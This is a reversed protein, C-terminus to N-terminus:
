DLNLRKHSDIIEELVEITESIDKDGQITNCYMHGWGLNYPRHNLKKPRLADVHMLVISKQTNDIVQRGEMQKVDDFFEDAFLPKHCLPCIIRSEKSNWVGLHNLENYNLLNREECAKSFLKFEKNFKNIYEEKSSQMMKIFTKGDKPDQIDIFNNFIYEPFSEGKHSQCRLILYLMQFKVNEKTEVNAYDYDYNGLGAQKPVEKVPIDLNFMDKVKQQVLKTDKSNRNTECIPSIYNGNKINLAYDGSWTDDNIPKGTTNLEYVENWEKLPPYTKYDSLVSYLVFGTKGLIFEKSLRNSKNPYNNGFYDEPNIIVVYGEEFNKLFTRGEVSSILQNWTTYQMLVRYDRRNRRNYIENGQRGEATKNIRKKLKYPLLNMIKSLEYDIM